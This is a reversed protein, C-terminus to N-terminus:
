RLSRSMFKIRLYLLLCADCNDTKYSAATALFRDQTNYVSSRIIEIDIFTEEETQSECRKKSSENM